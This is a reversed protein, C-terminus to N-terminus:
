YANRMSLYNLSPSVLLLVATLFFFVSDAQCEQCRSNLYHIRNELENWCRTGNTADEICGGNFLNNTVLRLLNNTSTDRCNPMGINIALFVGGLINVVAVMFDVVLMVKGQLVSAWETALGVLAALLTAAGAFTAYKLITPANLHPHQGKVLSASLTLTIISFLLQTSRITLNILPTTSTM